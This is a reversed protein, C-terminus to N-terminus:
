TGWEEDQVAITGCVFDKGHKQAKESALPSPRWAQFTAHVGINQDVDRWRGAQAPLLRM